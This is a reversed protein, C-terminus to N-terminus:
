TPLQYCPGTKGVEKLEEILRDALLSRLARESQKADSWEACLADRTLPQKSDRVAALLRGRCQRDTGAYTQGKRPAGAWPQHGNMHWKCQGIVPCASCSPSKATCITAGLEMVAVSVLSAQQPPKPLLDLARRREATTAAGPREFENGDLLRAHVRRVNTDLVAHRQGFAFSAVAAATYEGVGPLARLEAVTAPVKGHHRDVCTTAAAHLRLARRPYGLRGWAKVAAGTTASALEEPTPWQAMWAEFVPTVRAVPTQQLMVESVLVAWPSVTQGRWPLDRAHQEYWQLILAVAPSGIAAEAPSPSSSM